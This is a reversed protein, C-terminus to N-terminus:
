FSKRTSFKLGLILKNKKLLFLLNVLEEHTFEKLITFRNEPVYLKLAQIVENKTSNM